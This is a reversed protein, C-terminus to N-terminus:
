RGAARIASAVNEIHPVCTIKDEQRGGDLILTGYDFIFAFVSTKEWRVDAISALALSEHRSPWQSWNVSQHDLSIREFYWPLIAVLQTLVGIFLCLAAAIPAEQYVLRIPGVLPSRSDIRLAHIIGEPHAHFAILIGALIIFGIAPASILVIWHRRTDFTQM